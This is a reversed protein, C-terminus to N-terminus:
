TGGGARLFNSNKFYTVDGSEGFSSMSKGLPDSRYRPPRGGDGVKIEISEGPTVTINNGWCIAGGGGGCRGDGGGGGGGCFRYM